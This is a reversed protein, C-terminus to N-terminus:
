LLTPSFVYMPEHFWDMFPLFGMDIDYPATSPGRIVIGGIVGDSYQVSYHSHYWTTGYQTAKFKYTRKEGPAIPCETIGGVGDMHNTGLQRVGHWHIGTGNEHLNNKITVEITDGWDAYIVQM